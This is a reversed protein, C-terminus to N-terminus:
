PPSGPGRKRKSGMFDFADWFLSVAGVFACLWAFGMRWPFADSKMPMAVDVTTLSPRGPPMFARLRGRFDTVLTQGQSGVRVMPLGNEISRWVSSKWLQEHAQTGAYWDDISMQVFAQAGLDAQRVGLEPFVGEFCVMPGLIRRQYPLVMLVSGPTLDVPTLNFSKLLPIQNRFPVFEGFVVLKTKDAHQWKGDFLYAAQYTKDGDARFSGFMVPVMPKVGLPTVPPGTTATTQSFGEPFVLLDSHDGAAHLVAKATFEDLAAALKPREGFAMDFGHQGLTFRMKQQPATAALRMSALLPFALAIGFAVFPKAAWSKARRCDWLWLLGLNFLVVTASVFWITGWAAHQVWEPHIVLPTAAFAWPFALEPLYARLVEHSVWVLPVLWIRWGQSAWRLGIGLPLYVFFALFLIVLLPLVALVANGTWRQVFPVVWLMQFTFLTCGFVSASIAAHRRTAGRIAGLWPVLAVLVLCALWDHEYAMALLFGSLCAAGYLRWPRPKVKEEAVM